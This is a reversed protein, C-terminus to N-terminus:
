RWRYKGGVQLTHPDGEKHWDLRETMTEQPLRGRKRTTDQWAGRVKRVPCYKTMDQIYLERIEKTSFAM